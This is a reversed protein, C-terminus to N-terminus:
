KGLSEVKQAVDRFNIDQSYIKKFLSLAEESKGMQECVQARYYCLEKGEADMERHREAARELQELALDLQGKHMFCLGLMKWCEQEYRADQLANQFAAIAENHRGAEFQAKGLEVQLARDTPHQSIRWKYEKVAFDIRRQRLEARKTEAQADAPSRDAAEAAKTEADKYIRLHVDGLRARIEYEDPFEQHKQRLLKQAEAVQDTDLYLRALTLIRNISDPHEQLEKEARAVAERLDAMTVAIRGEAELSATKDKDRIMDRFSDASEMDYATMHDTAAVDRVEQQLDRNAPELSALRTLYELAEQHAGMQRLVDGLARLTKKSLPKLKLADKYINVAERPFGAKHAAKAAKMLAWCSNPSRELYDEFVELRKGPKSLLGRVSTLLGRPVAMVLGLPSGGEQQQWRREAGRLLIRADPYDPQQRLVERFLRIAYNFQGREVADCAKTYVEEVAM